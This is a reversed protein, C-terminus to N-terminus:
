LWERLTERTATEANEVYYAGCANALALALEWNWDRSLGHALGAGFRDGAGTERKPNEVSRNAVSVIGDATAAIAEDTTHLVAATIGMRGRLASLQERRDGDHDLAAEGATLESGNVSLIVDYISELAFLASFLERIEEESSISIPGPDFLLLNGDLETEALEGIADTM